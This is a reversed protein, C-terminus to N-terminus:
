FVLCLLGPVLLIIRFDGPLAIFGIKFRLLLFFGLFFLTMTGTAVVSKKEKYKAPANRNFNIFVATFLAIVCLSTVVAVLLELPDKNKILALWDRMNDM